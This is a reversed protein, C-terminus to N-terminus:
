FYAIKWIGQADVSFYIYYTIEVSQGNIMESRRIRYKAVNQRLYVQQINQMDQVMQIVSSGLANFIERYRQQSIPLFFSLAGEIDKDLLRKKM